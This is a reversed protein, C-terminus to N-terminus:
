EKIVWWQRFSKCELLTNFEALYIGDMIHVSSDRVDKYDLFWHMVVRSNEIVLPEISIESIEQYVIEEWFALIEDTTSGPPSFPDEFYATTKSFIQTIKGFDRTLWAEKLENCWTTIYKKEM